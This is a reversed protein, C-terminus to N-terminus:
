EASNEASKRRGQKRWSPPALERRLNRIQDRRVRDGFEDRAAEWDTEESTAKGAQVRTKYWARLEGDSMTPRPLAPATASHTRRAGISAPESPSPPWLREIDARRLQIPGGHDILPKDEVLILLPYWRARDIAEGTDAYCSAVNGDRLAATLGAIVDERSYGGVREIHALADAWTVWEPVYGALM